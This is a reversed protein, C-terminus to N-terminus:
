HMRPTKLFSHRDASTIKLEFSQGDREVVMPIDVGAPGTAWIRRYLGALDDVPHGAV